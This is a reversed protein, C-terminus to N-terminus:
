VVTDPNYMRQDRFDLSFDKSAQLTHMSNLETYLKHIQVIRFLM